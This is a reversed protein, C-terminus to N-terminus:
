LIRFHQLDHSMLFTGMFLARGPLALGITVGGRLSQVIQRGTEKQPRKKHWERVHWSSGDPGKTGGQVVLFMRREPGRGNSKGKDPVSKLIEM